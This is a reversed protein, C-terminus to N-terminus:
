YEQSWLQYDRATQEKFWRALVGMAVCFYIFSGPVWMLVGALQQDSAPDLGWDRRLLPLINLTDVPNTYFPYLGAPAFAIIIGLVSSSVAGMFLYILAGLPPLRLEPLPSLIPWWFITSTVLFSLHEVIHLTHNQLTAEYMIPLHWLYVTGVGLLWSIVPFSLIREAVRCVPNKLVAKALEAPIGLLLLPPVILVLVLHQLMHASFLYNDGLTHLPSVLAILLLQVGVTFWLVVSRRKPQLKFVVLYYGGLLIACGILVSPEFIWTNLLLQGTNV